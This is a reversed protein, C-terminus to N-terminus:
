KRFRVNGRLRRREEALEKEHEEKMKEWVKALRKEILASVEELPQGAKLRDTYDYDPMKGYERQYAYEIPTFRLVAKKAM